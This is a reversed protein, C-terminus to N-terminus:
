PEKVAPLEISGTVWDLTVAAALHDRLAKALNGRAQRLNLEADQVDLHTKVGFSFGKEAMELLRTAQAVTDRGATLIEGSECLASLAESVQVRITDRLKADALEQRRLESAAQMVRGNTRYGDFFPFNMIIEGSAIVGTERNSGMELSGWGTSGQFDIRPKNGAKAVTILEKQIGIWAASEALEPRNELAVAVLRDYDPIARPETELTGDISIKRGELGLLVALHDLSITVRNEASIVKPQANQVSVEAALVDYDTATGAEFKRQTEELHRKRQVLTQTAIDVLERALLADEFAITVDRAVAQRYRRIQDNASELGIKAARIAAGVQGWTFLVQRLGIGAGWSESNVPLTKAMARQTEDRSATGSTQATFQPLAAAREELYIGLVRDQYALAMQIDRNEKAAIELARKLTYVEKESAAESQLAILLMCLFIIAILPLLPVQKRNWPGSTIRNIQTSRGM